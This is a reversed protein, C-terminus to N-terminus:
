PAAAAAAAPGRTYQQKSNISDGTTNWTLSLCLGCWAAINVNTSAVTIFGPELNWPWLSAPLKRAVKDGRWLWLCFFLMTNM